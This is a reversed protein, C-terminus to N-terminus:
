NLNGLLIKGLCKIDNLLVEHASIDIHTVDASQRLLLHADRVIRRGMAV